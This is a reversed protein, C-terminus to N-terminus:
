RTLHVWKKQSSAASSYAGENSGRPWPNLRTSTAVSSCACSCPLAHTRGSAGGEALGFVDGAFLFALVRQQGNALDQFAKIMGEKVIFVSDARADADYVSAGRKLRVETAISGLETRQKETLIQVM